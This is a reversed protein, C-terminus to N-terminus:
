LKSTRVPELVERMETRPWDPNFKPDPRERDWAWKGELSPDLSGELMQIVYKGIVPFFKWGHFNGCTAIYLGNSASHPSIIFDASTTFADWCIRYKDMKWGEGKRGYFVQNAHDIDEKLKPPVKWQAYDPEPPPMSISRGPLVERTNTFITQGWWKLEKDKTPPLSGIFPGIEASYGQVGVPMDVFKAHTKDDLTTMGTTIGGAVIRGDARLGNLGSSQASLELLKPTFAGTCLIVHAATLVEGGRKKVGSCRGSADFQLSAVEATVYKVGLRLSERTIAQLCDGAAAWGSTRNILVEKVGSYDADDFLGGYMKKAEDVSVAFLDAKRGLKEYNDIVEQAYESRCTWFIGTEHFYPKWLPDSRFVDQAELGLKCYAIDDYDARVVKNWDWSAAVRSDADYADRDILTVSADPYKKILHYATSVGFVGAGVILYSSKSSAM